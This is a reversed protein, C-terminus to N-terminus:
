ASTWAGPMCTSAATMTTNTPTSDGSTEEESTRPKEWHWCVVPTHQPALGRDTDFRQVLRAFLARRHAKANPTMSEQQLSVHTTYNAFLVRRSRSASFM